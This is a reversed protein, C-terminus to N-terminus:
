RTEQGGEGGDSERASRAGRVSRRSIERWIAAARGPDAAYSRAQRELADTTLGQEQLIAERASDRAAENLEYRQELASLRAMTAVFTSDDMVAEGSARTCAAVAMGLVIHTILLRIGM